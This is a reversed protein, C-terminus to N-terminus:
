KKIQTKRLANLQNSIKEIEKRILKFDDNEIYNLDIAIYFHNLVEILSSYAIQTFHAQDKLSIRASGEAINSPVSIAARRIQSTLGFREEAPFKKTIKYIVVVLSKANQWVYLKEFGYKHM